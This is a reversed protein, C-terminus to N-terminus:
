DISAHGLWCGVRHETTENIAPQQIIGSLTTDMVEVLRRREDALAPPLPHLFFLNDIQQQPAVCHVSSAGNLM